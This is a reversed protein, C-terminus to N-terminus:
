PHSVRLYRGAGFSEPVTADTLEPMYTLSSSAQLTSLTDGAQAKVTYLSTDDSGFNWGITGGIGVQQLRCWSISWFPTLMRGNGVNFGIISFHIIYHM